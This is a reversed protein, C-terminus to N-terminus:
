VIPYAENPIVCIVRISVWFQYLKTISDSHRTNDAPPCGPLYGPSHLVENALNRTRFITGGHIEAIPELAATLFGEQGLILQSTAGTTGYFTFFGWYTSFGRWYLNKIQPKLILM